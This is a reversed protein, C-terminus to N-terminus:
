RARSRPRSSSGANKRSRVSSRAQRRRPPSTQCCRERPPDAVASGGGNHAPRAYGTLDQRTTYRSIRVNLGTGPAEIMRNADLVLGVHGPDDPGGGSSQFFVLDGPAQQGPPIHPLAHWQDAAIRPLTVGAQYWAYRTLGSCDFGITNAGRGIGRTPGDLGGGGWSYPTGLWRSAAAIATSANGTAPATCTANPACTDGPLVATVTAIIVATLVLAGTATATIGIMRHPGVRRTPRDPPPPTGNIRRTAM